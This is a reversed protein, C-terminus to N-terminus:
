YKNSKITTLMTQTTIRDVLQKGIVSTIQDGKTVEEGVESEQFYFM